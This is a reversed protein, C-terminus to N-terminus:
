FRYTTNKSMVQVNIPNLYQKYTSVSARKNNIM